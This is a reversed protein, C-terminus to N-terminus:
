PVFRPLQERTYLERQAESWMFFDRPSRAFPHSPFNPPGHPGGPAPAAPIMPKGNPGVVPTPCPRPGNYPEWPPRVCHSPGYLTGDWNYYFYGPGCGDPAPPPYCQKPAFAPYQAAAPAAALLLCGAAWLLRTLATM